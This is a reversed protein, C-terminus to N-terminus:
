STLLRMGMDYRLNLEIASRICATGLTLMAQLGHEGEIILCRPTGKQCLSLPSDAELLDCALRILRAEQQLADLQACARAKIGRM